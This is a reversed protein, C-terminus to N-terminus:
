YSGVRQEWQMAALVGQWPWPEHCPRHRLFLVTGLTGVAAISIAAAQSAAEVSSSWAIWLGQNCSNSPPIGRIYSVARVDASVTGGPTVLANYVLQNSCWCYHHWDDGLVCWRCSRCWTSTNQPPMTVMQYYWGHWTTVCPMCVFGLPCSSFANIAM